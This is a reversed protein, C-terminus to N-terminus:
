YLNLMEHGWIRTVVVHIQRGAPASCHYFKGVVFQKQNEVRQLLVHSPVTVKPTIDDMYVYITVRHLNCVARMKVVWMYEQSADKLLLNSEKQKVSTTSGSTKAAELTLKSNVLKDVKQNGTSLVLWNTAVSLHNPCPERLNSELSKVSSIQLSIKWVRISIPPTLSAPVSGFNSFNNELPQEAQIESLALPHSSDHNENKMPSTTGRTAAVWYTSPYEKGPKHGPSVTMELEPKNEPHVLVKPVVLNSTLPLSPPPQETWRKLYPWRPDEGSFNVASAGVVFDGPIKEPAKEWIPNSDCSDMSSPHLIFVLVHLTSIEDALVWSLLQHRIRLFPPETLSFRSYTKTKAKAQLSFIYPAHLAHRRTSFNDVLHLKFSSTRRRIKILLKHDNPSSLNDYPCHSCVLFLFKNKDSPRAMKKYHSHM